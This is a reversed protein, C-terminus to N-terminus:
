VMRSYNSQLSRGTGRIKGERRLEALIGLVTRRAKAIKALPQRDSFRIMQELQAKAGRPLPDLVSGILESSAGRLALSMTDPDVNTVLTLRDGESLTRIEDFQNMTSKLSDAVKPQSVRLVELIQEQM